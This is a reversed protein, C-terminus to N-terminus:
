RLRTCELTNARLELRAVCVGAGGSAPLECIGTACDTHRECPDHEAVLTSCTGALCRLAEMCPPANGVCSEGVDGRVVCNGGNCYFGSACVQNAESCRGGGSVEVPVQCTRSSEGVCRYGAVTDCDANDSCSEGEGVAGRFLADCPEAALEIVSLESRTLNGDKYAGRVAKLCAEARDKTYREDVKALCETEQAAFCTEQDPSSGGCAKVVTDNCVARAWDGCFGEHTNLTKDEEADSGCGSVLGVSLVLGSLLFLVQKSQKLM